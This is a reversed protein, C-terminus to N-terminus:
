ILILSHINESLKLVDFLRLLGKMHGTAVCTSNPLAKMSIPSIVEEVHNRCVLQQNLLTSKGDADISRLHVPQDKCTTLLIESNQYKMSDM